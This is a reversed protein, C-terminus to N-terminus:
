TSLCPCKWITSTTRIISGSVLYVRCITDILLMGAAHALREPLSFLFPGAGRVEFQGFVDRVFLTVALRNRLAEAAPRDGVFFRHRARDLRDVARLM